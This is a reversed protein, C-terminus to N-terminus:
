LLFGMMGDQAESPEAKGLWLEDLKNGEGMWMIRGLDEVGLM